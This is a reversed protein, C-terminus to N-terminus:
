AAVLCIDDMFRPQEAVIARGVDGAIQRFPQFILFNVMNAASGIVRLRLPLDLTPVLRQLIPDRQFVIIQGTIEFVLDAGEDIVIVVMAVVFAQVVDRRCVGVESTLCGDNFPSLLDLFQGDLVAAQVMLALRSLM